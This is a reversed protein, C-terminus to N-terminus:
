KKFKLKFGFNSVNKPCVLWFKSRSPGGWGLKSVGPGVQSLRNTNHDINM